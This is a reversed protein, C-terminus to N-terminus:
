LTQIAHRASAITLNGHMMTLKCESRWPLKHRHQMIVEDEDERSEETM